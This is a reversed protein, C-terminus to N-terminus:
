YKVQFVVAQGAKLTLDEELALEGTMKGLSDAIIDGGSVIDFWDHTVASKYFNGIFYYASRKRHRRKVVITQDPNTNPEDTELFHLSFTKNTATETEVTGDTRLSFSRHRASFVHISWM